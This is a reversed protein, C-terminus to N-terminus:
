RLIRPGKGFDLYLEISDDHFSRCGIEATEIHDDIIRWAFYLFHEDAAASSAPTFDEVNASVSENLGSTWTELPRHQAALRWIEEDLQGDLAIEQPGGQSSTILDVRVADYRLGNEGVAEDISTPIDQADLNWEGLLAVGAAALTSVYSIAAWCFCRPRRCRAIPSRRAGSSTMETVATAAYRTGKRTTARRKGTAPLGVFEVVTRIGWREPVM